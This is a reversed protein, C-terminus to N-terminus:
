KQYYINNERPMLCFMRDNNNLDFAWVFGRYYGRLTRKLELEPSFYLFFPGNIRLYFGSEKKSSVGFLIVPNILQTWDKDPESLVDHLTYESKYFRSTDINKEVILDGQGTYKRVIPWHLFSVFIEDNKTIVISIENLSLINESNKIILRDGFSKIYKGDPSFVAILPDNKHKSEISLYINGHSDTDMSLSTWPIKFKNSFNGSNDFVKVELNGNDVAVIRGKNDVALPISSGRFSFDKQIRFIVEGKNNMKIIQNIGADLVYINEKEDLCISVPYSLINNNKPLLPLFELKEEEAKISSFLCFILIDIVIFTKRIM